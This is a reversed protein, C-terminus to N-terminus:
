WAQKDLYVVPWGCDTSILTYYYEYLSIGVYMGKHLARSNLEQVPETYLRKYYGKRTAHLKGMGFFVNRQSRPSFM